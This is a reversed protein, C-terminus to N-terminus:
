TEVTIEPYVSKVEDFSKSDGDGYYKVYRAGHKEISRQFIRVAGAVEMSGTSVEYNANCSPEHIAKWKDYEVKNTKRLDEKFSCTKCNRSMIEVDLVKFNSTSVTVVVGNLSSFGRKQWTGDMSVSIDATGDNQKAEDASALMSAEAVTRAGDKLKNALAHHNKPTVPPPVNMLGCLREHANYGLGCSRMAYVIRMNVDFANM